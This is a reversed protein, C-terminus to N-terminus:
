YNCSKGVKGGKAKKVKGGKKFAPTEGMALKKKQSIAATSKKSGKM